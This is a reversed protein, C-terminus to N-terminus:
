SKKLKNLDDLKAVSDLTAIANQAGTSSRKACPIVVPSSSHMLGSLPTLCADVGEMLYAKYYKQFEQARFPEEDIKMACLRVWGGMSQITKHICADEFMVSQYVGVRAIAAIVTAWAHLARTERSGEIWHLLDAPKPMFKGNDPDAIHQRVAQQVDKIDFRELTRWYIESFTATITKGYLEGLTAMLQAFKPADHQNM